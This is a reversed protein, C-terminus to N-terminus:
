KSFLSCISFMLPEVAKRGHESIEVNNVLMCPKHHGQFLSDAVTCVSEWEKEKRAICSGYEHIM